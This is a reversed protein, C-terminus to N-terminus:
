GSLGFAGSADNLRPLENTLIAFRGPLKCTVQSLNKRDVTQADEGSISLLREVVVAADTRGSLRADSIIALTKGLLPWLGFNTGLGALMLVCVNALGVLRALIRAITGKGSRKPGVIM